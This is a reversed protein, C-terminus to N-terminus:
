KKGADRGTSIKGVLYLPCFSVASTALLVVALVGLIIALTGTVNGTFILVGFVIALLTRVIRDASGVNKTM